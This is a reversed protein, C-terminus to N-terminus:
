SLLRMTYNCCKPWGGALCQASDVTLRKGCEQCEVLGRQLAPHSKAMADHLGSARAFFDRGVEELSVAPKYKDTM